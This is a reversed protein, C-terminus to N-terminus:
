YKSKQTLLSLLNLFNDLVRGKHALIQLKTGTCCTFQTFQAGTGQADTNTPKYCYLLYISYISYGDMETEALEEDTIELM